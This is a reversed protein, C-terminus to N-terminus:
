NFNMMFTLFSIFPFTDVTFFRSNNSDDSYSQQDATKAEANHGNTLRVDNKPSFEGEEQSSNDETKKRDLNNRQGISKKVGPPSEKGVDTVASCVMFEHQVVFHLFINFSNKCWVCIRM